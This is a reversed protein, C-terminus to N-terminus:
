ITLFRMGRKRQGVAQEGASGVENLNSSQSRQSMSRPGTPKRTPVGLNASVTRSSEYGPSSVTGNSFPRELDDASLHENSLPSPKALKSRIKPPRDPAPPSSLPEKPPRAPAAQLGNNANQSHQSYVGDSVPSMQDTGNTQNSYRNVNSNPPLRNVSTSSGWDVSKPSMPSHFEQAQSELATQYRITPGPRPQPHQLNLSNRHAKYKPDEPPLMSTPQPQNSEYAPQPINDQSFGSHLKDGAFNKPSEFNGLDSGSRSPPQEFQETDRRGSTRFGRAVTSATTESWRSIKAVPNWGFSSSSKHKKSKDTKPTNENSLSASAVHQQPPTGLPASSGRVNERTPTLLHDNIEFQESVVAQEHPNLEDEDGEPVTSIRNDSFKRGDFGRPASAGRPTPASFHGSQSAHSATSTGANGEPEYGHDQEDTEEHQATEYPASQSGRNTDQAVKLGEVEGLLQMLMQEIKSLDNSSKMSLGKLARRFVNRRKAPIDDIMDEEQQARISRPVSAPLPRPGNIARQVSIDTNRRTETIIVDETDVLLRKMDEFSNRM